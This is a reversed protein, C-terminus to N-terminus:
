QKNDKDVEKMKSKVYDIDNRIHHDMQYKEKKELPLAVEFDRLAGFFDEFQIKAAARRCLTSIVWRLRRVSGPKPLIESISIENLIDLNSNLPCYNPKSIMILSKSCDSICEEINGLGLHCAARNSLASVYYNELQLAEDYLIRAKELHGDIFVTDGEKKKNLASKIRKLTEIDECLQYNNKNDAFTLATEFSKIALDLKCEECYAFGLLIQTNKRFCHAEGQKQFHNTIATNLSFAVNCDKVCLGFQELQFYCAARYYLSNVLTDDAEYASSFASIASRFDKNRYFEKGKGFLWTPDYDSIDSIDFNLLNNKKLHLRNKAIFAGERSETSERVPTKFLRPTNKFYIKSAFRPKQQLSSNKQFHFNSSEKLKNSVTVDNDTSHKSNCEHTYNKENIQLLNNKKVDHSNQLSALNKQAKTKPDDKSSTVCSSLEKGNEIIAGQITEHNRHSQEEELKAFYSYVQKEAERKETEKLNDIKVRENKELKM